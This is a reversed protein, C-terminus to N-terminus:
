TGKLVPAVAAVDFAPMSQLRGFSEQAYRVSFALM